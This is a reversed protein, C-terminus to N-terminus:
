QGNAAEPDDVHKLLGLGTLWDKLGTEVARERNEALDAQDEIWHDLAAIIEPSLSILLRGHRRQYEKNFRQFNQILTQSLGLAEEGKRIAQKCEEIETHEVRMEKPLLDRLMKAAAYPKFVPGGTREDTSMPDHAVINRVRSVAECKDCFREIGRKWDQQSIHKSRRKLLELKQRSDLTAVIPELLPTRMLGFVEITVNTIAHDLASSILVLEGVIAYAKTFEGGEEDSMSEALGDGM